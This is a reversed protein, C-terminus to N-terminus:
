ILNKQSFFSSIGLNRGGYTYIRHHNFITIYESSHLDVKDPNGLM